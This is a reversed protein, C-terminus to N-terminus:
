GGIRQVVLALKSIEIDDSGTSMAAYLEFSGVAGVSVPQSSSASVINNNGRGTQEVAFTTPVGGFYVSLLVDANSGIEFSISLSVTYADSVPNQILLVDIEDNALDALVRGFSQIDVTDFALVKQPTTTLTPPTIPPTTMSIGAVAFTRQRIVQWNTSSQAVLEVFEGRHSLIYDNTSNNITDGPSPHINIYQTVLGLTTDINSFIFSDQEVLSPDILDFQVINNIPDGYYIDIDPIVNVLADQTTVSRYRQRGYEGTNLLSSDGVGDTILPVGSDKILKGTADAYTTINNLVSPAVGVVDGGGDGQIIIQPGFNIDVTLDSFSIVGSTPGVPVAPTGSDLSIHWHGQIRYEGSNITISYTYDDAILDGYTIAPDADSVLSDGFNFSVINGIVNIGAGNSDTTFAPPDLSSLRVLLEISTITFTAPFLLDFKVLASKSFVFERTALNAM